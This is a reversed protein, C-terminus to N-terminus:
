RPKVVLRRDKGEGSSESYVYPNDALEMHVVRREAASMPELEVAFGTKRVRAAAKRASNKLRDDRRRKYGGVDLNVRIRRGEQRADEGHNVVTNVIYELAALTRGGRGIIKGSDGGYVAVDLEDGRDSVEVAYAPDFNLLLAVLFAQCREAADEEPEDGGLPLTLDHEQPASADAAEDFSIGLDELYKDLNEDAM